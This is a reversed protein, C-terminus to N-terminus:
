NARTGNWKQTPKANDTGYWGQFGSLDPEFIFLFRGSSNTQRWTGEIRFGSIEGVMTGSNHPYSGKIQNGDQILNLDGWDTHYIGTIQAERNLLTGDWKKDPETDNYGYWGEFGSGDKHFTFRIKGSGNDQQWTGNLEWGKLTGSIKGNNFPYSGKIASGMQTIRLEGWATSYTGGIAIATPPQATLTLSLLTLLMGLLFHQKKM